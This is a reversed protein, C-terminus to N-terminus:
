WVAKNKRTRWLPVVKRTEISLRRYRQSVVNTWRKAILRRGNLLMTAYAISWRQLSDSNRFAGARRSTPEAPGVHRHAAPAIGTPVLASNPM